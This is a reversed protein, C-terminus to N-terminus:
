NIKIDKFMDGNELDGSVLYFTELHSVESARYKRSHLTAEPLIRHERNSVSASNYFIGKLNKTKVKSASLMVECSPQNSFPHNEKAPPGVICQLHRYEWQVPPCPCYQLLSLATNVPTFRTRSWLFMSHLCCLM